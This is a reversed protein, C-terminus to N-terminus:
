PNFFYIKREINAQIKKLNKGKLKDQKFRRSSRSLIQADKLPRSGNTFLPFRKM